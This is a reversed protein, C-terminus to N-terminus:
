MPAKMTAICCCIYAALDQYEKDSGKGIMYAFNAGWDLDPNPRVM